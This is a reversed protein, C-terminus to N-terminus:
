PASPAPAPDAPLFKGAAPDFLRDAAVYGNFIFGAKLKGVNGKTLLAFPGFAASAMAVKDGGPNARSQEEGILPVREGNAEVYLLRASVSGPKGLAKNDTVQTVEGWAKAGIPIVVTGGVVVNEDVRLVFRTGPKAQHGNVENLVMLRVLTQKPLVIAGPHDAPAVPAAVVLQPAAQPPAAPVHSAQALLLAAALPLMM